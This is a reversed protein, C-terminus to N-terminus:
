MNGARLPPHEGPAGPAAPCQPSVRACPLPVRSAFDFFVTAASESGLSAKRLESDVEPVNLLMSRAPLFVRQAESTGRAILPEIRLRFANTLLRNDTNVVSLARTDGAERYM